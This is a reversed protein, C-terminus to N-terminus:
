LFTTSKSLISTIFFNYVDDDKRLSYIQTINKANLVLSTEDKNYFLKVPAMHTQMFLACQVSNVYLSLVCIHSLHECSMKDKNQFIMNILENPIYKFNQLIFKRSVKCFYMAAQLETRLYYSDIHESQFKMTYTSKIDPWDSLNDKNLCYGHIRVHSVMPCICNAQNKNDLNNCPLCKSNEKSPYTDKPCPLCKISNLLTGDWNREM